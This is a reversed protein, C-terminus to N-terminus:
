SCSLFAPSHSAAHTSAQSPRRAYVVVNWLLTHRERVRELGASRLEADIADPAHLFVRFASRRIRQLLNVGAIGMRMWVNDRPYVAGLFQRAKGASSRVLGHMDDYCCIVRDLTVVDAAPTSEAISVFDARVFEVRADHDHRRTEERAVDIHAPSADVHIARSVPGDLLDHHIAGIGAGIDLLVVDRSGAANLIARVDDILLRTTTDPGRRRYRRLAREAEARNFQQEVGCCQGCPM